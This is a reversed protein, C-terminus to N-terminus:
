IDHMLRIKAKITKFIRNGGIKLSNYNQNPYTKTGFPAHLNIKTKKYKIKTDKELKKINEYREQREIKESWAKELCTM